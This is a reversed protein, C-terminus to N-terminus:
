QEVKTIKDNDFVGTYYKPFVQVRSRFTGVFEVVGRYINGTNRDEVQVVIHNSMAHILEDLSM